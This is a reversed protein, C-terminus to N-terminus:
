TRGVRERLMQPEVNEVDPLRELMALNHLAEAASGSRARLWATNPAYALSQAIEYGAEDIQHRRTELTIGERFRIFVLGTPVALSGSPRQTYVPTLAAGPSHLEDPPPDGPYVAIEGDNLVLAAGPAPAGRPRRHVACGRQKFYLVEPRESSARVQEPFAALM